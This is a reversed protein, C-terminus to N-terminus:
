GVNKKLQSVHFTSHIKATAPLQLKYAVPGIKSIVEFPGFYRPSLKQSAHKRVSLQKYPQLKVYVWDGVQLERESRGKNALQRMRNQAKALNDKIIRIAVERASLTRDVAKFSSDGALYPVQLPPAQGYVVEYPTTQISSHYSVHQVVVRSITVMM